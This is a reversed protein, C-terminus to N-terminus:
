LTRVDYGDGCDWRRSAVYKLAKVITAPRCNGAGSLYGHADAHGSGSTAFPTRVKTAVGGDLAWVGAATVALGDALEALAHPGSQGAQVAKAAKICAASDGCFGAVIGPGSVLKVGPPGRHGSDCTERRDAWM